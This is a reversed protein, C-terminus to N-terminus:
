KKVGKKQIHKIFKRGEFLKYEEKSVMVFKDEKEIYFEYEM